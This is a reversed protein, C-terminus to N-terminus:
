SGFLNSFSGWDMGGGSSPASISSSTNNRMYDLSGYPSGGPSSGGFLGSLQGGYQGGLQAGMLGGGMVNAATNQYLPQTVNGTTANTTNATTNVTAGANTFPALISATAGTRALDANSYNQASNVLGQQLGVGAIKNASNLQNSSLLSNVNTNDAAQRAAADAAATSYQQGSLSQAASLARGQGQEYDNALQSATSASGALGVQTAGDTLRKAYDGIANGEAIGQRSGGYQGALVSNSRISPLVTKMLTDTVDGTNQRFQANTLDNGAQLSKMLATNDGGSLLNQFTPTLNIGNQSPAAIQAAQITPFQYPERILANTAAYDTNLAGEANKNLFDTGVDSLLNQKGLTGTLNGLIGGGNLGLLQAIAPNLGTVSSSSQSGTQTGSKNEGAAAAEANKKSSAYSGAAGIAAAGLSAWAAPM